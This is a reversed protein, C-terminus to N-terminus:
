NTSNDIKKILTTINEIMNEVDSQTPEYSTHATKHRLSDRDKKVKQWELEALEPISKSFYKKFLKKCREEFSKTKKLTEEIEDDRLGTDSMANILKIRVFNEISASAELIASRYAGKTKLNKSRILLLSSEDIKKKNLLSEKFLNTKSEDHTHLTSRLIPTILGTFPTSRIVLGEYIYQILVGSTLGSAAQYLSIEEAFFDDFYISYQKIFHNVMEISYYAQSPPHFFKSFTKQVGVQEKIKKIEEKNLSNLALTAEAETPYTESQHLRARVASIVDEDNIPELDNVNLSIETSVITRAKVLSLGESLYPTLKEKTDIATPYQFQNHLKILAYLNNSINMKIIKNEFSFDYDGDKLNLIYPLEIIHKSTFNM